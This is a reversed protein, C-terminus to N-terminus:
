YRELVGAYYNAGDSIIIYENHANGSSQMLFSSFSSSTAPWRYNAASSLQMSNWRTTDSGFELGMHVHYLIGETTTAAPLTLAGWDLASTTYQNTIFFSRRAIPMNSTLNMTVPAGLSVNFQKPAYNEVNILGSALSDIKAVM